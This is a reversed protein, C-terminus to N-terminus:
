GGTVDCYVYSPKDAEFKFTKAGTEQDVEITESIMEVKEIPAATISLISNIGFYILTQISLLCM